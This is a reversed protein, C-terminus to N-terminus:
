DEVISVEVAMQAADHWSVLLLQQDLLIMAEFQTCMEGCRFHEAAQFAFIIPKSHDLINSVKASRTDGACLSTPLASSLLWLQM